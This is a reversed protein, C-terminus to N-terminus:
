ARVAALRKKGAIIEITGACRYAEFVQSASFFGQPAVTFQKWNSVAAVTQRKALPASREDVGFTEAFCDTM